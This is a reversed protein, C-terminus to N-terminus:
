CKKLNAVLTQNVLLHLLAVVLHLGLVSHLAHVLLILINLLLYSPEIGLDFLQLATKLSVLLYQDIPILNLDRM